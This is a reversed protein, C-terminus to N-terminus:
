PSSRIMSDFQKMMDAHMKGLRYLHPDDERRFGCLLYPLDVLCGAKFKAELQRLYLPRLKKLRRLFIKAEPTFLKTYTQSTHLLDEILIRHREDPSDGFDCTLSLPSSKEVLSYDKCEEPYTVRIEYGSHIDDIYPHPLIFRMLEGRTSPAREIDRPFWVPDRTSKYSSNCRFCSPVFNSLSLAFYPYWMRPLFHDIPSKYKERPENQGSNCGKPIAYVTEANCYLCYRVGTHEIFEATGWPRMSRDRGWYLKAGNRKILNGKSFADFNFVKSLFHNCSAITGEKDYIGRGYKDLIRGLVEIFYEGSGTLLNKDIDEAKHFQAITQVYGRGDDSLIADLMRARDKIPIISGLCRELNERRHCNCLCDLMWQLPQSLRRFHIRRAEHWDAILNHRPLTPM